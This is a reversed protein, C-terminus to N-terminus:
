RLHHHPFPVTPVSSAVHATHRFSLTERQRKYGALTVAVGAHTIRIVALTEAGGLANFSVAAM